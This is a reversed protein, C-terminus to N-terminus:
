NIQEEETESSIISEYSKKLDDEIRKSMDTDFQDIEKLLKEHLAAVVVSLETM